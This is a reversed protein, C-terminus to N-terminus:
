ILRFAVFQSVLRVVSDKEHVQLEDVDEEINIIETNQPANSSRTISAHGRPPHTKAKCIRKSQKSIKGTKNTKSSHDM